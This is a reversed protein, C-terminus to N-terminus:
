PCSSFPVVSSSIAPHCGDHSSPCSNPHVGPTPSPCPPRAHQQEHPQLSDSVVWLSFQVSSLWNVPLFTICPSIHFNCLNRRIFFDTIKQSRLEFLIIPLLIIKVLLIILFWIRRTNISLEAIQCWVEKCMPKGSPALPFFCAQWLASSLLSALALGPDPLDGPPFRPLRSWYEQRTPEMPDYLTPCSQLLKTHM